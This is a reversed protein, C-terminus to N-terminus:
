FEVQLKARIGHPTTGPLQLYNFRRVYDIRIIKFINSIGVSAEIYPKRELTYTIPTGDPQTPFRYLGSGDDPRNGSSVAGYLLKVTAVERLKLKKVLPIKNLFFGNFFHNVNLAVYRDSIFEMFNMLNYANDQYLYSQNARHITLLPYPVKGFVAGAELSLKNYGLPPTNTFKELFMSVDDYNYGGGLLGKVGHTYRLQAIFRFAVQLRTGNPGQMYTEGPAYRVQAFFRATNVPKGAEASADVPDFRLAGAPKLQEREFGAMWSLNNPYEREYQLKYQEWYLLKDNSGRVISTGIFTNLFQNQGPIRLDSAYNFRLLHLPFKNYATKGLAFAAGSAFKWRKDLTGYQVQGELQVRKSFKATSRGQLLYRNGEVGNFAYVNHMPGLEIKPGLDIYGSAMLRMNRTMRRYWPSRLISDTNIYGLTEPTNLPVRTANWYTSDKSRDVNPLVIIKGAPKFLTDSPLPQNIRIDRHEVFRQGFMGMLKKSFLGFYMRYDERALIRRGTASDRDFEQEVQLWQVWNLNVNPNVTFRVRTVPYTSDLAVFLDGQLLMDAKNRPYFELRVIKQGNEVFTDMPYYRYLLPANNSIPSAFQNTVLTVNNDYIDVGQFLYQISKDAGEDDVAGGFRVSKVSYLYKKQQKPPNQSYFRLMNEQLFLPTVPAGSIKTTDVNDWIFRIPKLLFNNKFRKTVKGLGFVIKEYQVDQYTNLNEIRNQDRHDIVLRILEVAPNDKNRYKKPKITVERLQRNEPELAVDLTQLSDPGIPLMLLRYGLREFRLETTKRDLRIEYRGEDDSYRVLSAGVASVSVRPLPLTTEADTVQGRVIHVPGQQAPLAFPLAWFLLFCFPFLRM